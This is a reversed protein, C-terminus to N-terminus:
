FNWIKQLADFVKAFREVFEDVIQICKLFRQLGPFGNSRRFGIVHIFAVCSILLFQLVNNFQYDFITHSLLAVVFILEILNGLRSARISVGIDSLLYNIYAISDSAAASTKRWESLYLKNIKISTFSTRRVVYSQSQGIKLTKREDTPCLFAIRRCQLCCLAPFKTQYFYTCSINFLHHPVKVFRTKRPIWM